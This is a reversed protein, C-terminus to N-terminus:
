AIRVGGEIESYEEEDISDLEVIKGIYEECIEKLMPTCGKNSEFDFDGPDYGHELVMRFSRRHGPM